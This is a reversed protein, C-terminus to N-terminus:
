QAQDPQEAPGNRLLNPFHKKAHNAITTARLLLSLRTAMKEVVSDHKRKQEATLMDTRTNYGLVVGRRINDLASSAYSKMVSVHNWPELIIFSDGKLGRGSLYFGKTELVRRIESVALGFRMDDRKTKLAQEFYEKTTM